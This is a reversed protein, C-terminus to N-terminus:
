QYLEQKLIELNENMLTIYNKGEDRDSDTINDIKNLELVKMNHNYNTVEQANHSLKENKFTFIYSIVGERSLTKVEEIEKETSDNDLCIVKLGFKELFKLASDSVVIVKNDTNDVTLHYEADLESLEIKLKNYATDVKKSLYTSTIYEKLGLRVNQAMMLLSSPNLWLEEPSYETELVYSTDIIKLDKNIDLLEIALTREKERLGTYIFLEMSSFNQKQKKTSKYSSIDVGDPYVTNIKAHEGYLRDVIYENPYNTVAIDIDEMNDQKCGSASFILFIGFGLLLLKKKM